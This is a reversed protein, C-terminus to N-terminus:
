QQERQLPSQVEESEGRSEVDTSLTNATNVVNITDRSNTITSSDNEEVRTETAATTIATVVATSRTTSSLKPSKPLSAPFFHAEGEEPEQYNTIIEALLNTPNEAQDDYYFQAYEWYRYLLMASFFELVLFLITAAANLPSPVIENWYVCIQVLSVIDIAITIASSALATKPTPKYLLKLIILCNIVTLIIAAVFTLMYDKDKNIKFDDDKTEVRQSFIIIRAVETILCAFNMIGTFFLLVRYQKLTLDKCTFFNWIVRFGTYRYTDSYDDNAVTTSNVSARIADTSPSTPNAVNAGSISVAPPFESMQMSLNALIFYIKRGRFELIRPTQVVFM